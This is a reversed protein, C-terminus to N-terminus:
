KKDKEPKPSKPIETPMAIQLSKVQEELVKLRARMAEVVDLMGYFDNDRPMM